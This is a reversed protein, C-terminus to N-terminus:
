QMEMLKNTIAQINVELLYKFKKFIYKQATWHRQFSDKFEFLVFELM